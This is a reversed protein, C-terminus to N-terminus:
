RREVQALAAEAEPLWFTMEMSQYMAIATSLEARAQERQSTTAYFMGLGCHCHALRPRMGLAEALTLAQRYYDAAAELDPPPRHAAIAGLLRVAYAEHGREKHVQAFELARGTLMVVQGTGAKVRAWRERLIAVESTRGILPTLGRAAALELRSQIGSPRLVRYVPLPPDRGHLLPEGLADCTFYGTIHQYTAASIV